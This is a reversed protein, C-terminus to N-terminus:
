RRSRLDSPPIERFCRKCYPCCVPVSVTSSSSLSLFTQQQFTRAEKRAHELSELLRLMMRAFRERSDQDPFASRPLCM